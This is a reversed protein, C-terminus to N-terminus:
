MVEYIKEAVLLFFVEGSDLECAFLLLKFIDAKILSACTEALSLSRLIEQL